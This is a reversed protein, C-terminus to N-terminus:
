HRVVRARGFSLDALKGLADDASTDGFAVSAVLPGGFFATTRAQDIAGWANTLKGAREDRPVVVLVKDFLWRKTRIEAVLEWPIYAAKVPWKQARLWIGDRDAALFPGGAVQSFVRFGFAVLYIAFGVVLLALAGAPHGYVFLLIAPTLLLAVPLLYRVLWWGFRPRIVFPLDGPVRKTTALQPAKSVPAISPPLITPLASNLSLPAPQHRDDEETVVPVPPAM